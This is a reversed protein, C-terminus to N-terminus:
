NGSQQLDYTGSAYDKESASASSAQTNCTVAVATLNTPDDTWGVVTFGQTAGGQSCLSAINAGSGLSFSTGQFVFTHGTPSSAGADTVSAECYVGNATKGTLQVTNCQGAGAQIGNGQVLTASYYQESDSSSKYQVYVIADANPVNDGQCAVQSQANSDLYESQPSVTCESQYASPIAQLLPSPTPTTTTSNPTPATTSTAPITTATTTTVTVPNSNGKLVFVLVIVVIVVVGAAVGIILPRRSSGGQPPPPPPPPPPPIPNWPDQMSM